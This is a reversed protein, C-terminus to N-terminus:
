KILMMKRVQSFGQGASLRYLYVGSALSSADFPIEYRGAPLEENILQAVQQGSLDFITLRVPASEPLTFTFTTTPNFPNPYNPHLEFDNIKQENENRSLKPIKAYINVEDSYTSEKQTNDVATIRYYLSRNGVNTVSEEDIWSNTPHNVSTVFEYSLTWGTGNTVEKRYINYKNIDSEMNADWDLQVECQNCVSSAKLNQPRAPALEEPDTFRVALKYTQNTPNFSLIQIGLTTEAFSTGNWYHSGPNSKPTLVDGVDYIDLSDGTDDGSQYIGGESYTTIYPGGGFPHNPDPHWQANWHQGSFGTIYIRETESYGNKSDPVDKEIFDDKQSGNNSGHHTMKWKFRGDADIKQVDVRPVDDVESIIQYILVGPKLLGHTGSNNNYRPEFASIWRRNEILFYQSTGPIDIKYLRDNASNMTSALDWLTYNDGDTTIATPTMWGLRWKEYGSYEGEWGGVYTKLNSKSRNSTINTDFFDDAWHGSGFFYHSMEHAVHNVILGTGFPPQSANVAWDLHPMFMSIGSGPFSGNITVGDRDHTDADLFARGIHFPKQANVDIDRTLFWIMDVEGDPGPQIDDYTGARDWNDYVSFDVNYPPNDLKDLAEMEIAARAAGSNVPPGAAIQHYYAESSDTTLYYVDGIVHLNGYSNEYFYNSVTGPYYNGTSSYSSSVFNEAWDPLVNADPWIAATENDDAFRIFVVLVRLTGSSTIHKGVYHLTASQSEQDMGATMGCKFSYDQSRGEQYFFLMLFMLIFLIPYRM